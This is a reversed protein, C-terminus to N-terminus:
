TRAVSPEGVIPSLGDVLDGSFCEVTLRTLIHPIIVSLDRIDRRWTIEILGMHLPM